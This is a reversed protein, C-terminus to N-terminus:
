GSKGRGSIENCYIDCILKAAYSFGMVFGQEEANMEISEMVEEMDRSIEGDIKELLDSFKQLEIKKEKTDHFVINIDSADYLSRYLGRIM